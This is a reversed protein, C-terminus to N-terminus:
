MRRLADAVRLRMAQQAPLIGTIVGLAVSLGLGVLLDRVPFFFMPMMGGSPDGRATLGWAGALGLGGGVKFRRELDTYIARLPRLVNEDMGSKRALSLLVAHPLRDFCKAYDLLAGTLPKNSLLAEEITLAMAYFADVASHRPRFGHQSPHIWGEQWQVAYRLRTAAWLRYVSSAVSIPRQELPSPSTGKPILTIWAQCIAPPWHGHEEVCTLLTALHGLFLDPLARLEAVRWGDPGCATRTSQKRLTKRLEM